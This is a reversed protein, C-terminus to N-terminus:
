NHEHMNKDQWRTGLGSKISYENTMIGLVKQEPVTSPFYEAGGLPAFHTLQVTVSKNVVVM